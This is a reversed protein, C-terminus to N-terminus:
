AARGGSRADARLAKARAVVGEAEAQRTRYTFAVDWGAQVAGLVIGAGIGRSGGTVFMVRREAQSM